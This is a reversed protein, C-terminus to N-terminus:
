NVAPRLSVKKGDVFISQIKAVGSGIFYVEQDAYVCQGALHECLRWMENRGMYQDQFIFEVYDACHLERDVQFCKDLSLWCSWCSM